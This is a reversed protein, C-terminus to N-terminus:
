VQKKVIKSFISLFRKGYYEYMPIVFASSVAVASLQGLTTFFQSSYVDYFTKECM